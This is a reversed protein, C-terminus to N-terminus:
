VIAEITRRMGDISPMRDIDKICKLRRCLGIDHLNTILPQLTKEIYEDYRSSRGTIMPFLFYSEIEDQLIASATVISSSLLSIFVHNSFDHTLQILEWPIDSSRSVALGVDEYVTRADRPHMKILLNEKGVKDAIQLVLETEGVSFGDVDSSSAFYIYKQSFEDKEPVYSFITNLNRILDRDKRNLSPIRHVKWRKDPFLDPFYCFAEHTSEFLSKSRFLRKTMELVEIRRGRPMQIMQQYSSIGEEFRICTTDIGKKSLKEYVSYVLLDANFFLLTNYCFDDQWLLSTYKKGQMFIISFIDKIDEMFNQNFFTYKTEVYIVRRFLGTKELGCAVSKAERSHDSMIIDVQENKIISQKLQIANIIQMYTNCFMLTNSCNNNEEKYCM